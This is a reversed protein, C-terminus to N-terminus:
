ARGRSRGEVIGGAIIHALRVPEPLKGHQTTVRLLADAQGRTMGARQVFLGRLPEMEGAAEILAWKRAGGPVRSLLARRMAAWDPRRRAVVLVPLGLGHHLAHVDVVNFGAVAIGQLIVARLHGGFQSHQVLEIMRATANSGDRRVKGTVVGDLRTRACIAGVLTVDGRHERAFPADDFGIV